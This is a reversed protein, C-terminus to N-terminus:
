ALRCAIAAHDSRVESDELIEVCFAEVLSDCASVRAPTSAYGQSNLYDLCDDPSRPAAQQVASAASGAVAPVAQAPLASLSMALAALSGAVAINRLISM